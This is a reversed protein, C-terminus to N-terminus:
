DIEDLLEDSVALRSRRNADPDGSNALATTRELFGLVPKFSGDSQRFSQTAM